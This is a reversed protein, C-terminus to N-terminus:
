PILPLLDIGTAEEWGCMVNMNQIAQGAAGKVMNDIASVVVVQDTRSDVYVGINCFNTGYVLKTKPFQGSKHIRVFKEKAYFERYFDVLGETTIGAAKAKDTLQGYMTSLIGRTMPVLHPTFTVRLEKNTLDSLFQEIEPTHQHEGIKYAHISEQVESFLTGVAAARGAGSTGSKADIIIGKTEIFDHLLLPALGLSVSTPYCGPNSIFEANAIKERHFETLGYIGKSQSIRDPATKKYWKEHAEADRLRFDGGLDVVKLGRELLQPVWQSSVGSPLSLFVFECSSAILDMDIAKLETDIVHSLQGELHPYVDVLDIGVQSHSGLYAVKIHPHGKLWRLLEIGGYGTVGIIGVKM